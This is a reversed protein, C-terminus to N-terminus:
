FGYCLVNQQVVVSLALYESEFFTACSEACGAGKWPVMYQAQAQATKGRTGGLLKLEYRDSPLVAIVRYPSRMGSDLKEISKSYKIVLVYDNVQFTRPTRRHRNVYTDQKNQNEKLLNKVINRSIERWEGRNPQGHEIAVDRILARIVPTTANSQILLNLASSQTTKQKTINLAFQIRCLADPRTTTKNTSEVRILNLATRLYREVQGNARHMESTDYRIDCCM